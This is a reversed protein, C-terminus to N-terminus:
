CISRAGHTPECCTIITVALALTTGIARLFVERYQLVVGFDWEYGSQM